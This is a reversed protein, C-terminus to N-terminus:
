IISHTAEASASRRERRAWCRQYGAGLLARNANQWDPTRVLRRVLVYAAASVFAITMGRLLASWGLFGLYDGVLGSLKM